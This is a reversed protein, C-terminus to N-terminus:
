SAINVGEAFPSAGFPSSDVPSGINEVIQVKQPIGLM